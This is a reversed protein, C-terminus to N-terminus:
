NKNEHNVARHYFEVLKQANKKWSFEEALARASDSFQRYRLPDEIIMEIAHILGDIDEPQILYGNKEPIIFLEAGCGFSGIAPLGCANGEMISLPYGEFSGSADVRSPLLFVRSRRYYNLLEGEDVSGAFIVNESLGKKEAMRRLNDGFDNRDNGVIYYRISPYKKKLIEVAAIGLDQGKRPKLEGVTILFPAANREMGPTFHETDVGNPVNITQPLRCFISMKRCTFKSTCIIGTASEFLRRAISRTVRKELYRLAYTGHTSVIYPKGLFAGVFIDPETFIHVLDCDRVVRRLYFIDFPITFLNKLGRGLIRHMSIASFDGAHRDSSIVTTDIGEGGLAKLLNLSYRGWGDKEYLSSTIVAIKMGSKMNDYANFFALAFFCSLFIHNVFNNIGTV